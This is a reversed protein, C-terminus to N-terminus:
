VGSLSSRQTNQRKNEKENQIGQLQYQKIRQHMDKQEQSKWGHEWLGIRKITERNMEHIIETDTMNHTNFGEETLKERASKMTIM